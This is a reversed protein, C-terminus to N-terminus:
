PQDGEDDTTITPDDDPDANILQAALELLGLSRYTPMVGNPYCVGYETSGPEDAPSVAAYVLLWDVVVVDGHMRNAAAAVAAELAADTARQEPTRDSV